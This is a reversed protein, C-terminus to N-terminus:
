AAQQPARFPTPPNPPLYYRVQTGRPLVPASVISPGNLNMLDTMSPQPGGSSEAIEMTLSDLTSPAGSVFIGIPKGTTALTLKLQACAVRLQDIARRAGVNM